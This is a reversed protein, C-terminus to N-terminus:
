LMVKRLQFTRMLSGADTSIFHRRSTTTSTSSSPVLAAAQTAATAKIPIAAAEAGEEDVDSGWPQGTPAPKGGAASAPM